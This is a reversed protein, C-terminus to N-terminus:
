KLQVNVGHIPVVRVMFEKRLYFARTKSGHGTGKTRNQLLTGTRSTLTGDLLFQARIADYDAKLTQAMDPHDSLRFTYPEMYKVTDGDREYPVILMTNMKKGVRSSLFENDRLDTPSLMTIAMTEKPSTVGNKTGIPYVKLEGDSCDLPNPGHPVGGITELLLGAAGKNASRACIIETATHALVRATLEAISLM